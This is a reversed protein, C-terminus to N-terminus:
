TGINDYGRSCQCSSFYMYWQTGGCCGLGFNGGGVWFEGGWAVHVM